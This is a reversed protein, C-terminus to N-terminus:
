RRRQRYFDYFLRIERNRPNETLAQQFLRGAKAGQGRNKYFIGQIYFLQGRVYRDLLAPDPVDSILQGPPQRRRILELINGSHHMPRVSGPSFYELVPHNDSHIRSHNGVFNKIGERNLLLTSALLYPDTFFPDKVRQILDIIGSFSIRLERPSGILVGHTQALWVMSHPFVSHFTNLLTKLDNVTLKHLPLYQSIVGGPTMQRKCLEFYEKSYLSGSGLSPHVPDCSIIDYKKPAILLYSRGDGAIFNVKPNKWVRLNYREFLPAAERVGPCIEVCDIYDLPHQAVASTTVGIGFGIILANKAEPNILMPLQGMYHVVKLADYTVGCVANNNVYCSRVGTKKDEVVAVTGDVTEKYHKLIHVANASRFVSPPLIHSSKGIIFPLLIVGAFLLVVTILWKKKGNRKEIFLSGSLALLFNILATLILGKMVGVLPILVFGAIVPGIMSGLTNYFFIKGICARLHEISDTFMKCILPFVIGMLLAPLFMILTSLFLGPFVMRLIPNQLLGAFPKLFIPIDNLFVATLAVMFFIIFQLVVLLSMSSARKSLFKAYIYSGIGIGTLYIILISSFSYISNSTFTSLAWTWLIEYALGAFGTFFSALILFSPLSITKNPILPVKEQKKQEIKVPEPERMKLFCIGILVNILIGTLQTERQGILGILFYGTLGAGLIGGFTNLGYLFGIGKGVNAQKRIYLQSIVPFTGGMLFTPIVMLLACLFFIFFLILTSSLNLSHVLGQYINSLYPFVLLLFLSGAGIGFQLFAFTHSLKKRINRKGWFFSGAGLGLMFVSVVVTIVANTKGFILSLERIWVVQYCLGVFGSLFFLLLLYPNGKGAINRSENKNTKTTM